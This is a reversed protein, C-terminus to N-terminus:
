VFTSQASYENRSVQLFSPRPPVRSDSLDKTETQTTLGHRPSAFHGSGCCFLARRLWQRCKKTFCLHVLPTFATSSKAAFAATAELQVPLSAPDFFTEWTAVVAYPAWCIVMCSGVAITMQLISILACQPPSSCPLLIRFNTITRSLIKSMADRITGNGLMTRQVQLSTM